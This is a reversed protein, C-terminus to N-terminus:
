HCLVPNGQITPPNRAYSEDNEDNVKNADILYDKNAQEIIQNM